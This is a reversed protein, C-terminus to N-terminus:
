EVAENIEDRATPAAAIVREAIEDIHRPTLSQHIPVWLLHEYFWLAVQHCSPESLIEPPMEEFRGAAVGAQRLREVVTASGETSLLPLAMPCVGEPVEPFLPRIGARSDLRQVLRQYNERRVHVFRRIECEMSALLKLAFVNGQGVPGRESPPPVTGTGLANRKLRHWPVHLQLAAAQTLRKALWIGTARWEPEGPPQTINMAWGPSVALIGVSPVAMLKHPSFVRMDGAEGISQPLLVHVADEILVMGERDCFARAQQSPGPFGFFHVLLFAQAEDTGAPEVDMRDWDPSLDDLVPYFRLRVPLHRVLSLVPYCFYGPIWLAVAGADTKRLVADLGAALAYTGRAFLHVSSAPGTTWRAGSAPRMGVSRILQRLGPLPTLLFTTGGVPVAQTGGRRVSRM